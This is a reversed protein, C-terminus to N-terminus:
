CNENNVGMMKLIKQHFVSLESMHQSLSDKLDKKEVMIDPQAELPAAYVSEITSRSVSRKDSELPTHISVPSQAYLLGVIESESTKSIQHSDAPDSNVQSVLSTFDVEEPMTRGIAKNARYNKRKDNPYFHILTQSYQEISDGSIRQIVVSPFAGASKSAVYKDVAAILGECAINILDLYELHSRPTKSFFMRARNIALPLNLTIIKNRVEKIQEFLKNVNSKKPFKTRSMVFQLFQYNLRFDALRLPKDERLAKAIYRTFTYQRERFYPRAALINRKDKMIYNAFEVFCKRGKPTKLLECVFKRELEALQTLQQKQNKAFLKARKRKPLRKGEEEEMLIRDLDIAFSRFYELDNM